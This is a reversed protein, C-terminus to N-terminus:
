MCHDARQIPSVTCGQQVVGHVSVLVRSEFLLIDWIVAYVLWDFSNHVTVLVVVIRYLCELPIAFAPMEQSYFWKEPVFRQCQKCSTRHNLSFPVHVKRFLKRNTRM